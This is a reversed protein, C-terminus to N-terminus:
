SAFLQIGRNEREFKLDGVVLSSAIVSLPYKLDVVPHESIFPDSIVELHIGEKSSLLTPFRGPSVYAALQKHCM